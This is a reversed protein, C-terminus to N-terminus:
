EKNKKFEDYLAQDRCNLKTDVVECKYAFGWETLHVNNKYLTTNLDRDTLEDADMLGQAEATKPTELIKVLLVSGTKDRSNRFLIYKFPRFVFPFVGDNYANVSFVNEDKANENLKYKSTTAYDRELYRSATTVTIKRYEEDKDGLVFAWFPDACLTLHLIEEPAIGAILDSADVIDKTEQNKTNISYIVPDINQQVVLVPWYFPTGRWGQAELGNEQIFMIVPRDIAKQRAPGLDNHGDDPADIFRRKDSRWRSANRGTRHLCHITECDTADVAYQLVGLMENEDWTLGENQCIQENGWIYTSKILPLLEQVTSVPIDFFDDADKQGYYPSSEIISQIKKVVNAISSKPGTQFGVPLYRSQPKIDVINSPKIKGAACPKIHKGYGVFVANFDGTNQADNMKVFRERLQDDIQNMTKFAKYIKETTHFKTVAMDAISRSGYMRCHQLVTDMQFTKPDRGYFFCLMNAITIGRDLISGGIFINCISNLKLQGKKDLKSQVDNDSNVVHLTIEKEVFLKRVRKTVERGSPFAPLKRGEAVGAQHTEKYDDYHTKLLETVRKDDINPVMIAEEIQRMIVSVLEHQWVHSDKDVDVHILASSKFDTESEDEQLSRIAAGVIYAVIADTLGKINKSAIGNKLYRVDRKGMVQICKPDLAQFLYSFMSDLDISDEFYQKGGVYASHVPVLTTYRPKFTPVALGDENLEISGDPQLYLSYPTATVQLYRCYDPIQTFDVIQQSIKALAMEDGKKVYNRSCFDAEDDVVLVKMQKLYPSRKNFLSILHKMNDAQKKCVIVVKTGKRNFISEHLGDRSFDKIIDFIHVTAKQNSLGKDAFHAFDEALRSQTQEALAKTGKTFVVCVDIGKDFALGVINEFTDTKGCQIKGLLLVPDSANPGDELLKEVTKRVCRDKEDTVPFKSHQKLTSYIYEDDSIKAKEAEYEALLEPPCPIGYKKFGEIQSELQQLKTIEM